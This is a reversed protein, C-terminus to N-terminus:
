NNRPEGNKLVFEGIIKEGSKDYLPITKDLFKNMQYEVAQQPSSPQHDLDSAYVYGLTGDVGYAEILDPELDMQLGYVDGGYTLGNENTSYINETSVLSKVDKSNTEQISSELTKKGGANMKNFGGVNAFVVKAGLSITIAYVITFAFITGINRKIVTKNKMILEFRRLLILKNKSLSNAITYSVSASSMFKLLMESYYQREDLTMNETLAEDCAYECSEGINKVLLYIIPNFWHISCAISALVKCWHDKSKFHNLEHRFILELDKQSIDKDPLIVRFKYFGIIMPSLISENSYVEIDKSINMESLIQNFLSEAENSLKRCKKLVSTKFRNYIYIFHTLVVIAGILWILAIIDLLSLKSLLPVIHMIKSQIVIINKTVVTVSYDFAGSVDYTPALPLPIPILFLLLAFFCLKHFKAGGCISIIIRKNVIIFLSVLSGVITLYLVYM